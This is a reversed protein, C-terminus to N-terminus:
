EKIFHNAHILSINITALIRPGVDRSRHFNRAAGIDNCFVDGM